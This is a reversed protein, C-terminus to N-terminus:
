KIAKSEFCLVQALAIAREGELGVLSITGSSHMFAQRLSSRRKLAGKGYKRTAALKVKESHERGVALVRRATWGIPLGHIPDKAPGHPKDERTGVM